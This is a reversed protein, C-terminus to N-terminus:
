AWRPAVRDVFLRVSTMVRRTTPSSAWVRTALL